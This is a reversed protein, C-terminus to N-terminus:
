VKTTLKHLESYPHDNGEQHTGKLSWLTTDEVVGQPAVLVKTATAARGPYRDVPLEFAAVRTQHGSFQQAPDYQFRTANGRSRPSTLARPHAAPTVAFCRKAPTARDWDGEM